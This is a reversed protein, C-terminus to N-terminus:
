SKVLTYRLEPQNFVPGSSLTLHQHKTQLYFRPYSSYFFIAILCLYYKFVLSHMMSNAVAEYAALLHLCDIPWM